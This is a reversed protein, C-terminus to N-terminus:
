KVYVKKGNQIYLGKPLNELSGNLRVGQLTYIAEDVSTDQEVSSIADVIGGTNQMGIKQYVRVWDFRTEYTHTVDANAAWSGNGVSQNLILHFHKDFPWQGQSLHSANTSKAYRSVEKGDLYWILTNEDWALGYTHYRDYSCGTNFSSQPNGTNGLDYTWNSHVTHYSRNQTDIVEWIDIEGCDPWGASQDEPMMWFAPFNGTWLNNFIRAEVYGYTFGFRGMSKIGGTIMPVNDTTKDPNPIARAVLDGDELYIVEESDSLWRNWTAGQRQCRMWKDATPQSGDEANFEDSFVLHWESEPDREFTAYLSVDGETMEAPITVKGDVAEIYEETWQRNGEADLEEGDLNQGYRVTIGKAAYGPAGRLVVEMPQLPMVTIPLATNDPGDICGNETYQRLTGPEPDPETVEGKPVIRIVYSSSRGLSEDIELHDDKVNWWREGHFADQASQTVQISCMGDMTLILYTNWDAYYANTGFVAYENVYRGDAESTLKYHNKGSSDITFRWEQAEGPADVTKFTPTGGSGGPTTNTLYRDGDMIYYVDRTSIIPAKPATGNVPVLDFIFNDPELTTSQGQTVRASGVTWFKSGASGANQICYKGNALRLIYYTHWAAEYPNTADSVTFEGKENLYRDDQRNVIKYRGTEPDISIHWEQRQPKVDDRKEVFAPATGTVGESQNTLYLGNHMIFYTGNEIEQAPFVDTRYDYNAKYESVLTVLTNKLFPAIHYSGVAPRAVRISGEFDRSRVESQAEDYEQYRLYSAIFTEPSEAELADYMNMLETGKLAMYRMVQCWPTIEAVLAPRESSNMLTTATNDLLTFHARMVEVADATKGQAMLNDYTAKAEVFRPSENTRRLGHVNDGLDVNNECFLRFEESHEPMLYEIASEWSADADYAAMNWCYDGISYLSVKSAEAYEMPNSVFGGLMSAIDLDNGYTPGMLIHDRCYDTVPYNLWIYANRKIRTNVWEMDGKGIMDVVSNGTWMIHTEEDLTTGLANLYTDSGGTYAKNYQTPCMIIPAVDTHKKVFNENLYNLYEAQRDGKSQEAGNIDDFFISFARIGLAYMKELKNISATRDAETWQIDGGPHLAWVFRVKHRAAVAALESLRKAEAEPYDERWRDRHYPDDKPGYIYVNMKMRGFFELLSKRDADSYPNGYYGEVLGRDSIAPWDTIAVAQVEPQAAVQLYTQVGYYTGAEDNGAIVVKDAGVSLYYGEAKTPILSEYEAVAADGREGIILQVAGGETTFHQTLLAVADADAADAGVLTYTVTNDFAKVTGWEVQQPKPSIETQQAVAGLATLVTLLSFIIKKM